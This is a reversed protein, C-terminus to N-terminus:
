QGGGAGPSRKQGGEAGPNRKQGASSSSYRAGTLADGGLARTRQPEFDLDVPPGLSANVKGPCALFGGKCAM